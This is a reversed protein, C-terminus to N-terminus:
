FYEHVKWVAVNFFHLALATEVSQTGLNLNPFVIADVILVTEKCVKAAEQTQKQSVAYKTHVAQDFVM